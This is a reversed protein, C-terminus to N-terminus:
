IDKRADPNPNLHARREEVRQILKVAVGRLEQDRKPWERRQMHSHLKQEGPRGKEERQQNGLTLDPVNVVPQNGKM